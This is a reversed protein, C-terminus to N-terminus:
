LYNGLFRVDMATENNLERSVCVHCAPKIRLFCAAGCDQKQLEVLLSDEDAHTKKSVMAACVNLCSLSVFPALFSAVPCLLASVLLTSMAPLLTGPLM